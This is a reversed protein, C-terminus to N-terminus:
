QGDKHFINEMNKWTDKYNFKRKRKNLISDLSDKKVNFFLNSNPNDLNVASLFAYADVIELVNNTGYHPSYSVASFNPEKEENYFITIWNGAFNYKYMKQKIMCNYVITDVKFFINRKQIYTIEFNRKNIKKDFNEIDISPLGLSDNKASNFLEVDESYDICHNERESINKKKISLIYILILLITIILIFQKRKDKM